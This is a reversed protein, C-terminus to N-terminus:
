LTDEKYKLSVPRYEVGDGKYFRSFLEYYELRLGQIFVVLGELCIIIINGLVLVFFGATGNRTMDAVTKFAVFLGAHNLAFAGIRVFSITKSLMGLLTEIVGFISEVYYDGKNGEYLPRKREILRAIPEKMIILLLFIFLIASTAGLPLLYKGYQFFSYASLLIISLFMLSVFGERGFIGEEIDKARACNIFNAAYSIFSLVIGLIVSGLLMTNINEMPYFLIPKIVEENGFVSGYLLGFICSSIGIRELIGGFDKSKKFVALYLGGLFLLFGQGVDGFMAGFMIMYSVAVFPTPDVERYEPTGYMTVIYEFPRVLINNSLVTPPKGMKVKNDERFSMVFKDEVPKIRELFVEKCSRPIWGSLCFVQETNVANDTLMLSKQYKDMVNLGTFLFDKNEERLAEIDKKIREIKKIREKILKDFKVVANDPTDKIIEPIAIEEFGLSKFIVESENISSPPTFCIITVYNKNSSIRYVISPINEVNEKLKVYYHRSLRGIKFSFFKLKRLESLTFNLGKINQAKSKFEKIRVLDAQSKDLMNRLKLAEKFVSTLKDKIKEIDIDGIKHSKIDTTDMDLADMTRYLMDRIKQQGKEGEFRKIIEEVHKYEEGAHLKIDEMADVVHICGCKVMEEAVIKIDHIRGIASVMEMKEVAM